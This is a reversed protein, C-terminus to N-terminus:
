MPTKARNFSPCDEPLSGNTILDARPADAPAKPIDNQYWKRPVKKKTGKEQYWKRQVMKKTGNEPFTKRPIM